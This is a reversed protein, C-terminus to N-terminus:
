LKKLLVEGPGWIKNRSSVCNYSIQEHSSEDRITLPKELKESNHTKSLTGSNSANSFQKPVRLVVVNNKKKRIPFKSKKDKVKRALAYMMVFLDNRTKKNKRFRDRWKASYDSETSSMNSYSRTLIQSIIELSHTSKLSYQCGFDYSDCNFSNIVHVDNLSRPVTTSPLNAGQSKDGLCCFFLVTFIGKSQKTKQISQRKLPAAYCQGFTRTKQPIYLKKHDSPTHLPHDEHLYICQLSPECKGQNKIFNGTRIVDNSNMKYRSINSGTKTYYCVNTQMVDIGNDSTNRYMRRKINRPVNQVNSGNQEPANPMNERSVYPVNPVNGQPMNPVNGQPMNPVNGQPMNPVNGQSMNPVNERSM